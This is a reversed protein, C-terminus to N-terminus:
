ANSLEKAYIKNSSGERIEAPGSLGFIKTPPIAKGFYPVTVNIVINAATTAMRNEFREALRTFFDEAGIRSAIATVLFQNVSVGDREAMRAVQRHLSKPLRLAVKGSYGQNMVPEPVDLGQELNAEIWSEAAGELSRIAEEPTDGEAFCGPFELIEASFTGDDNPILIRSYPEKLYAEPKKNM